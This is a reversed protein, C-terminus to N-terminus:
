DKWTLLAKKITEGPLVITKTRNPGRVFYDAAFLRFCIDRPQKIGDYHYWDSTVGAGVNRDVHYDIRPWKKVVLFVSVREDDTLAYSRFEAAGSEGNELARMDLGFKPGHLSVSGPNGEDCFRVRVGIHYKGFKRFMATSSLEFEIRVIGDFDDHDLYLASNLPAPLATEFTVDVIKGDASPGAACGALAALLMLAILGRRM